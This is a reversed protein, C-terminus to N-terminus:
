RHLIAHTDRIYILTHVCTLGGRRARMSKRLGGALMRGSMGEMGQKAVAGHLSAGAFMLRWISWVHSYWRDACACRWQCGTHGVAFGRSMRCVHHECCKWARCADSVAHPLAAEHGPVM